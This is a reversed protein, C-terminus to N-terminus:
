KAYVDAVLTADEVFGLMSFYLILSLPNWDGNYRLNRLVVDSGYKKKATSLAKEYLYRRRNEPPNLFLINWNMAKEEVMGIPLPEAETPSFVIYKENGSVKYCFVFSSGTLSDPVWSSSMWGGYKGTNYYVSDASFFSKSFNSIPAVTYSPTSNKADIFKTGEPVLKSTAGHKSSYTSLDTVLQIVSSSKNQIALTVWESDNFTLTAVVDENDFSLAEHSAHLKEFEFQNVTVCSQLFFLCAFLLFFSKKM